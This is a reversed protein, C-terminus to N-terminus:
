LRKVVFSVLADAIIAFILGILAFIIGDKAKSVKQPDGGSVIYRLGSVVIMLLALAGVIGIVIDKVANITDTNAHAQPLDGPKIESVAAVIQMLTSM